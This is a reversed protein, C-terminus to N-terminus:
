RARLAPVAPEEAFSIASQGAVQLSAWGPQPQPVELSSGFGGHGYSTRYVTVDAVVNGKADLAKAIEPTGMPATREAIPRGWVPRGSPEALLSRFGHFVPKEFGSGDADIVRATAAQTIALRRQALLGYNYDSIWIPTCYSMMDKTRAPNQFKNTRFDLGWSGLGAMAYDGQSPYRADLGDTAGCPAHGRGHQHGLEHVMTDGADPGPFGIGAGVQKGSSPVDALYSLGAICSMTCYARFTVAPSVLAYYHVDAPAKDADRQAAVASLFRGWGNGATLAIDSHVPERVTIQVDSIPYYSNLATRYSEIQPQGIDPMRGSKDADYVIPVLTVKMVGTKVLPLTLLGNPPYSTTQGGDCGTGLELDVGVSVNGQMLNAPVDWNISSDMAGESSDQGLYADAAVSQVGQSSGLKLRARAYGATGKAGDFTVYARFFARRNEILPATLSDVPKGDVVLPVKVAQFVALEKIRAGCAHPTTLPAEVPPGSSQNGTGDAGGAGGPVAATGANDCAAAALAIALALGPSRLALSSRPWSLTQKQMSSIQCRPLPTPCTRSHGFRTNSHIM